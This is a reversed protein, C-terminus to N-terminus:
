KSEASKTGAGFRPEANHIPLLFYEPAVRAAAQVLSREFEDM